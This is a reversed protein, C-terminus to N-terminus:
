GTWSRKGLSAQPFRQQTRKGSSQNLATWSRIWKRSQYRASRVHKSFVGEYSTGSLAKLPATRRLLGYTLCKWGNMPQSASQANSANGEEARLMQILLRGQIMSKQRVM